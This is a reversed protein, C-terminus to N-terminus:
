SECTKERQCAIMATFMLLFFFLTIRPEDFLSDVMGVTFFGLFSALFLAAPINGKIGEMFLRILLGVTILLFLSVGFWGHEILLHIGINKVHWPLHNDVTFFWFDGGESFDGNRILNKQAENTYLGLNDVDLSTGSSGNYLALEVPRRQYIPNGTALDGSSFFHEFEVWRGQTDGVDFRLWECGYSHLLSKECIPINLMAKPHDSRVTFQIRYKENPRLAVRQGYYLSDGSVLRLFTNDGEEMFEFTAPKFGESHGQYYMRPFRGLGEGFLGNLIGEQRMRLGDRWHSLRTDIDQGTKDFRSQIYPASVIPFAVAGAILCAIVVLSLFRKRHARAVGLTLVLALLSVGFALYDIRSFTVLLTYIALPFLFLGGLRFLRNKQALFCWGILPLSAALFGDIYAGGTHMSYFTSTIRYDNSFNILGTFVQREWLAVLCVGALGALVGGIFKREFDREHCSAKRFLPWLAFAYLFGKCIRLSNFRSYYNAFANFDLSQLPLLGILTSIFAGGFFLFLLTKQIGGFLPEGEKEGLRFYGVAITVLVLMDFADFFFRGTWPAFNLVPLLAPLAFLWIFPFRTLVLAYVVLGMGLYINGLPYELLGWAVLALIPLVILRSFFFM